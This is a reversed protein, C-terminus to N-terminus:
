GGGPGGPVPAPASAGTLVREVADAAREDAGQRLMAHIRSFDGRLRAVRAPDALFEGVAAAIREPQAQEQLFEPILVRDLLNNPMSFHRVHSFLRIVVSALWSVRYTVVAPRGLLAAELSATGSKLVVVDAAAMADRSYGTTRRIAPANEREALLREFLERTQDSVFPAVFVVNPVIRAIATATDIFLGGMRGIESVRSGPLLAVVPGVQPLDLRRRAAAVDTVEPIEDAMPHGVFTVPVGRERFYDVEFPFLALLQDVARRIRRIRYGRWAWVTPSVYHVTRIGRGRLREELVLNFDPVDIGVFADPRLRDFYEVLERRIRLIKLLNRFLGDTGIVSISEMPYLSHVGAEQMRPGGIGVFSAQPYRRRLAEVLGAGLRDGSAEGAVVGIRPATM